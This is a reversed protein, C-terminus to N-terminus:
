TGTLDLTLHAPRDVRAQILQTYGPDREVLICRRGEEEAAQGTTGSGAFPDLILGDRPTILRILWRM